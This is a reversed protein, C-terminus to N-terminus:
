YVGDAALPRGIAALALEHLPTPLGRARAEARVWGNRWDFEKVSAPFDPISAAYAVLRDATGHVGLVPELEAILARAAAEPVGGVPTGHLEGLLGYVVNWLLKEAIAADIDPTEAAPLGLSTLASVLTAAHPGGFLSPPGAVAAGSRDAAAFYLAGRTAGGLGWRALLPALVGNQVFVLDPRCAAPTMAIVADVDDNRTCVVIPAGEPIPEGRRVLRAGTRALVHGVRGAGVIIM